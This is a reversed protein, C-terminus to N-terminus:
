ADRGTRAALAQELAIDSVQRHRQLGSLRQRPGARARAAQELQSLTSLLM